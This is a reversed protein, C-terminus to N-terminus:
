ALPLPERAALWNAPISERGASLVVIAGAIACNTDIDGGGSVVTWLTEEYSRMSRAACWLAFPVTDQATVKLGSGLMQAVLQPARELSVDLARGCQLRTECDPLNSVVFEIMERSDCNGGRNNWAWAAALASAIAGAQGEAHSHTVEASYRAQCILQEIDDAFYAGLPGARM